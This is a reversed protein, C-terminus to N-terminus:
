KLPLELIYVRRDEYVVWEKKPRELLFQDVGEALDQVYDNFPNVYIDGNRIRRRSFGGKLVLLHTVGYDTVLQNVTAQDTAYTARFAAETRRKMEPYLTSYWCHALKYNCLVSRRGLIPIDDMEQPHGAFLIKDPLETRIFTCMAARKERSGVERGQRYYGRYLYIGGGILALLALWRLGRWRIRALCLDWNHGQWLALLVAMSYRTYRNPMYFHIFFWDALTYGLLSALFLATWSRKWGIGRNRSWLLFIVASWFVFPHDVHDLIEDNLDDVPLYPSRNLGGRLMEPMDKLVEYSTLPGIRPSPTLYKYLIPTAGLVGSAALIPLFRWAQPRENVLMLGWFVASVMGIMVASVPYALAAFPMLVCLWKWRRSELLYVAVLLLPIMWAKSFGGAFYEFQDPWFTIAVASLFGGRFGLMAQGLMFFLGSCLGCGLVALVKTLWLVDTFYTGVYYIGNQVPSENYRALELLLDDARYSEEHHYAAWHPSQRVDAKYTTEKTLAPWHQYVSLSWGVVCFLLTWLVTSRTWLSVFAPRPPGPNDPGPTSGATPDLNQAM